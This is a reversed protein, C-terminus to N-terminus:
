LFECCFLIIEMAFSFTVAFYLIPKQDATFKIHKQLTLARLIKIEVINQEFQPFDYSRESLNQAWHPVPLDQYTM